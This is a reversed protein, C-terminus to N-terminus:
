QHKGRILDGLTPAGLTHLLNPTSLGSHESPTLACVDTTVLPIDGPLPCPGVYRWTSPVERYIGTGLNGSHCWRQVGPAWQLVILGYSHGDSDVIELWHHEGMKLYRSPPFVETKGATTTTSNKTESAFFQQLAELEARAWRVNLRRSEILGAELTNLLDTTNSSIEVCSLEPEKDDKESGVTLTVTLGAALHEERDKIKAIAALQTDCVRIRDIFSNTM